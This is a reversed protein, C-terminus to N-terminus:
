RRGRADTPRRLLTRDGPGIPLRCMTGRASPPGALIAWPRARRGVGGSRSDQDEPGFRRAVLARRRGIRRGVLLAWGVPVVDDADIVFPVEQGDFSAEGNAPATTWRWTWGWRWRRSRARAQRDDDLRRRSHRRTRVGGTGAAGARRSAPLARSRGSSSARSASSGHLLQPRGDTGTWALTTSYRPGVGLWM